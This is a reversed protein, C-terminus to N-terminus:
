LGEALVRKYKPVSYFINRTQGCTVPRWNRYPRDMTGGWHMAARCPDAFQGEGWAEIRQRVQQWLRTYRPSAYIGHEDPTPDGWPLSQVFRQRKTRSGEEGKLAASYLRIFDAFSVQEEFEHVSNYVRWRKALVWGIAIHDQASWDAEGVWAQALVLKAEEDWAQEPIPRDISRAGTASAVLLSILLVGAYTIVKM